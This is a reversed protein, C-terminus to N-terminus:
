RAGFRGALLVCDEPSANAHVGTITLTFAGPETAEFSKLLLGARSMTSVTARFLGGSM